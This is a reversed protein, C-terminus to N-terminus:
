VVRQEGIIATFESEEGRLEHRDARGLEIVGFRDVAAIRCGVPMAEMGDGAQRLHNIRGIAPHEVDVVPWPPRRALVAGLPGGIRAIEIAIAHLRAGRMRDPHERRPRGEREILQDLCGVIRPQRAKGFHDGSQDRRLGAIGSRRAGLCDCQQAIPVVPPAQGRGLGAERHEPAFGQPLAALIGGGREADPQAFPHGAIGVLEGREIRRHGPELGIETRPLHWPTLDVAVLAVVARDLM